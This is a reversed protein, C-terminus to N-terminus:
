LGPGLPHEDCGGTALASADQVHRYLGSVCWRVPIAIGDDDVTASIFHGRVHIDTWGWGRLARRCAEADRRTTSM